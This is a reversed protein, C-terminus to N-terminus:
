HEESVEASWNEYSIKAIQPQGTGLTGKRDRECVSFRPISETPQCIVHFGRIQLDFILFFSTPDHFQFSLKSKELYPLYIWILTRLM